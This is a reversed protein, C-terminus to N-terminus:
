KERSSPQWQVKIKKPKTSAGTLEQELKVLKTLDEIVKGNGKQLREEVKEYATQVLRRATPRPRPKQEGTGKADKGSVAKESAPKAARKAM